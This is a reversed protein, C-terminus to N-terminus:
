VFLLEASATLARRYEEPTNFNLCPEWEPPVTVTQWPENDMFGMVSRGGLEVYDRMRPALATSYLGHLPHLRQAKLLVAGYRSSMSQTLKLGIETPPILSDTPLVLVYGDGLGATVAIELAQAIGALPGGSDRVDSVYRVEHANLVEYRRAGACIFIPLSHYLARLDRVQSEILSASGSWLSAKDQGMRCSDGGALIAVAVVTQAVNSM